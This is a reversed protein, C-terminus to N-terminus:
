KGRHLYHVRWHRGQAQVMATLLLRRWGSAVGQIFFASEVKM